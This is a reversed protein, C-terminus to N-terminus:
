ARGSRTAYVGIEKVLEPGVLPDNVSVPRVQTIQVIAAEEPSRDLSLGSVCQICLDRGTSSTMHIRRSFYVISPLPLAHSAVSDM